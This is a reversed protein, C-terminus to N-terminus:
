EGSPRESPIIIRSPMAPTTAAPTPQPAGAGAGGGGGGGGSGGDGGGGGGGAGGGVRAQKGAALPPPPPKHLRLRLGQEELMEVQAQLEDARAEAILRATENEALAARLADVEATRSSGKAAGAGRHTSLELLQQHAKHSIHQQKRLATALAEVEQERHKLAGAAAGRDEAAPVQTLSSAVGNLQQTITLQLQLLKCTAQQRSDSRQQQQLRAALSLREAQQQRLREEEEACQEEVAALAEEEARIQQQLQEVDGRMTQLEREELEEEQSPGAATRAGIAAAAAPPNAPPMAEVLSPQSSLTRATPSGVHPDQLRLLLANAADIASM